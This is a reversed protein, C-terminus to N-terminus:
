RDVMSAIRFTASRREHAPVSRFGDDPGNLADTPATMPEVCIYDQGPPAFIQAIPYGESYEIAITRRGGRVEFRAGPDIRDFGDDWTRATIAGQIPEVPETAGTPIGKSDLMLRRRVPFSVTWEARPHGPIQVYPHFGFAIPVSEEGTAILSTTVNIGRDDLAIEIEIRHRFPFAALLEPRDFEYSASISARQENAALEELSWARSATLLGHIPLGNDDLLLLPSSPDLEVDRGNARYGFRRLRNAWPHLFPIGMFKRQGAYAGTGAGQWLLEEGLHILSAGLM